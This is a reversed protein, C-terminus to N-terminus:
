IFGKIYRTIDNNSLVLRKAQLTFRENQLISSIVNLTTKEINRQMEIYQDCMSDEHYTDYLHRLGYPMKKYVIESVINENLMDQYIDNSIYRSRKLSKIYSHVTIRYRDEIEEDTGDSAEGASDSRVRKLNRHKIWVGM